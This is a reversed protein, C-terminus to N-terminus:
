LEVGLYVRHKKTFLYITNFQSITQAADQIKNRCPASLLDSTMILLIVMRPKEKALPEAVM